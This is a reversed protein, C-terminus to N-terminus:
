ITQAATMIEKIIVQVRKVGKLLYCHKHEKFAPKLAEGGLPSRNDNFEEVIKDSVVEKVNASVATPTAVASDTNTEPAKQGKGCATLLVTVAALFLLRKKM